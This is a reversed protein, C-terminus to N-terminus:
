HQAVILVIENWFMELVGFPFGGGILRDRRVGRQGLGQCGSIPERDRHFIGKEKVETERETKVQCSQM